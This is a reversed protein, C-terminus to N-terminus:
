HLPYPTVTIGLILNEPLDAPNTAGETARLLTMFDSYMESTFLTGITHYGHAPDAGSLVGATYIKGEHANNEVVDPLNLFLVM